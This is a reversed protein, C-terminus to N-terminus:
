WKLNQPDKNCQSSVENNEPQEISRSADLQDQANNLVNSFIQCWSVVFITSISVNVPSTLLEVIDFLGVWNTESGVLFYFHKLAPWTLLSPNGSSLVLGIQHGLCSRNVCVLLKLPPSNGCSFEFVM